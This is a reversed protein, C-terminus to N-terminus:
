RKFTRALMPRDFITSLSPTSMCTCRLQEDHFDVALAAARSTLGVLVDVDEGAHHLQRLVALRQELGEDFLSRQRAHLLGFVQKSSFTRDYPRRSARAALNWTAPGGSRWLALACTRREQRIHGHGSPPAELRPGPCRREEDSPNAPRLCAQEHMTHMQLILTQCVGSCVAFYYRARCRVM